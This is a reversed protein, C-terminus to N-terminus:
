ATFRSIILSVSPQSIKFLHGIFTQSLGAESYLRCIEKNRTRVDNFENLAIEEFKICYGYDYLVFIKRYMDPYIVCIEARKGVVNSHKTTTFFEIEGNDILKIFNEPILAVDFLNILKEKNVDYKSM